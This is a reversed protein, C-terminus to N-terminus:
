MCDRRSNLVLKNQSMFGIIGNKFVENLRKEYLVSLQETYNLGAEKRFTDLADGKFNSNFM